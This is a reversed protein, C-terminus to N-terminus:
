KRMRALRQSEIMGNFAKQKLGEDKSFNSTISFCFYASNAKAAKEPQKSRRAKKFMEEGLKYYRGSIKEVLPGDELRALYNSMNMCNLDSAPVPTDKFFDKILAQVKARALKEMRPDGSALVPNYCEIAYLYYGQAKDKAVQGAREEFDMAKNICKMLYKEKLDDRGIQAFAISIGEPTLSVGPLGDREQLVKAALEKGWIATLLDKAKKAYETDPYGSTVLLILNESKIYDGAEFAAEAVAYPREAAMNEADRLLKSANKAMGPDLDRAIRYHELAVNSLSDKKASNKLCWEALALHAGADKPDLGAAKRQYIDENTYLQEEPIAEKRVSKILMKPFTCVGTTKLKVTIQTDTENIVKGEVTGAGDKLEFVDARAAGSASVAIFLAFTLLAVPHKM